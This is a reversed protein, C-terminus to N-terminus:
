GIKYGCSGLLRIADYCSFGNWETRSIATDRPIAGKEVVVVNAGSKIAKESAPHVCIDNVVNGGSLRTVAILKAIKGDSIRKTHSLPTGEVPIRAMIGSISVGYDLSELFRDAIEENTHEEGVPEVLHVLKLKSDRVAALTARRENVDFRTDTGERLRIAHYICNVGIGYLRDATRRDIEGINFVLEYNGPVEKRVRYVLTELDNVDYFQTTRFVIYHVHNDVYERVENTIQEVSFVKEEKVIGWKEGFSCFDCNMPCAAYDVGIAGWLYAKGGTKFKAVEFAAQCLYDCEDSGEGIQLLGVMEKKDLVVGDLKKKRALDVLAKKDSNM